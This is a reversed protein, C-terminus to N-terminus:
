WRSAPASPAPAATPEAHVRGAAADGCVGAEDPESSVVIRAVGPFELPIRRRATEVDPYEVMRHDWLEDTDPVDGDCAECLYQLREEKGHLVVVSVPSGSSDDVFAVVADDPLDGFEMEDMAQIMACAFEPSTWMQEFVRDGFLLRCGPLLLLGALLTVVAGGHRM